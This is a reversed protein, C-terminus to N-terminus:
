KELLLKEEKGIDEVCKYEGTLIYSDDQVVANKDSSTIQAASLENNAKEDLQQEALSAAEEETRTVEAKQWLIYRRNIFGIPLDMGNATLLHREVTLSYEDDIPGDTYLPINLSFLHFCPRFIVRGSPQICTEHLPIRVEIRHTTEALVKAQSRQLIPGIKSEIVGSVLLTGTTVTDGKQVMAQGSYAEISIIRGDHAAKINSPQSNNTREPATVREAVDIYAVSGNLNVTCWGLEPLKKIAELQLAPIDLRSLDMGERVGLEDMAALIEKASVKDNGRVEIVWIRQSLLQLILIFSAFGAVIGTRARYRRLFVPAGHKEVVHMRMGARRAPSRLRHYERMPCCAILKIGRCGVGWITINERAILNLLREPFGGEAEFRVWGFLWRLFRIFFM